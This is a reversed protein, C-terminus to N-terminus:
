HGLRDGTVTFPTSILKVLIVVVCTCVAATMNVRYAQLLALFAELEELVRLEENAAKKTAKESLSNYEVALHKFGKKLNHWNETPGTAWTTVTM